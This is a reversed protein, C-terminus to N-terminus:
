EHHMQLCVKYRSMLPQHRFQRSISVQSFNIKSCIAETARITSLKKKSLSLGLWKFQYCTKKFLYGWSNLPIVVKEFLYGLGNSCIVFKKSCIKWISLGLQKFLHVNKEYLIAWASRIVFKNACIGLRNLHSIFLLHVAIWEFLQAFWLSHKQKLPWLNQM